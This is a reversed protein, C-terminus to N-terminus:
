LGCALTLKDSLVHGLLTLYNMFLFNEPTELYTGYTRAFKGAAGGMVEQPWVPIGAGPSSVPEMGVLARDIGLSAAANSTADLVQSLHASM